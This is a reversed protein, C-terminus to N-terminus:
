VSFNTNRQQPLFLFDSWTLKASNEYEHNQLVESKKYKTVTSYSSGFKQNIRQYCTNQALFCKLNWVKLM